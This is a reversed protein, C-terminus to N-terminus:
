CSLLHHYSFCVSQATVDDILQASM